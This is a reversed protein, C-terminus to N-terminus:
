KKIVKGSNIDNVLAVAKDLENLPFSKYYEWEETEYYREEPDVALWVQYEINVGGPMDMALSEQYEGWLEVNWEDILNANWEDILNGKSPNDVQEGDAGVIEGEADVELFKAHYVRKVVLRAKDGHLSKM